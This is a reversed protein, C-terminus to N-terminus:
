RGRKGAAPGFSLEPFAAVTSIGGDVALVQGTIHASLDSSLFLLSAAIEPPLAARGLPVHKGITQWQEESLMRNLRPTRVFGPAVANIRVGGNACELSYSRVLHHLAAKAAGYAVQNRVAMSGALSGVFSITGGGGRAIRPAGIQIALYAHQLVIAFQAAWAQDDIDGIPKVTAVGVVDIIGNIRGLAREAANFIHEVDARRTVDGSCGIGGVEGAIANALSEDQDVCLVRAGAQALAHAAQRGIGQGAGLVVLGRDRLSLLSLYDPVRSCDIQPM